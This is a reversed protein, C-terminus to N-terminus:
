EGPSWLSNKRSVEYVDEREEAKVDHRLCVATDLHVVCLPLRLQPMGARTLCKQKVLGFCNMKSQKEQAHKFFKGTLTGKAEMQSKVPFSHMLFKPFLYVRSVVIRNSHGEVKSHRPRHSNCSWSILGPQQSSFNGSNRIHLRHVSPALITCVVSNQKKEWGSVRRM